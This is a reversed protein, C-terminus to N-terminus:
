KAGKLEALKNRVIAHYTNLHWLDENSLFEKLAEIVAEKNSQQIYEALLFWQEKTSETQL